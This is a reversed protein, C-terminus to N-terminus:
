SVKLFANKEKPSINHSFNLLLPFIILLNLKLSLYFSQTVLKKWQNNILKDLQWQIESVKIRINSFFQQLQAFCLRQLKFM